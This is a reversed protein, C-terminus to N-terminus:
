ARGGAARREWLAVEWVLTTARFRRGFGSARLVRDIEAPPHLWARFPVGRLREWLNELPIGLRTLLTDRPYVAGWLRGARGASARVLAEMDPYCCIVRDLTVVDCRPLVDALEVFDGHHYAVREELGRRRAEARATDLYTTSADVSVARAAGGELLEHQLIGVGGGIDLVTAGDVGAVQLARLLHRTAAPPGKRQYGRLQRRAEREGFRTELGACCAGPCSM